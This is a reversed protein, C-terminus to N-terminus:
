GQSHTQIRIFAYLPAPSLRRAAFLNHDFFMHDPDGTKNRISRDNGAAHAPEGTCALRSELWASRTSHKCDVPRRCVGRYYAANRDDHGYTCVVVAADGSSPTRVAVFATDRDCDASATSRSVFLTHLATLCFSLTLALTWAFAAIAFKAWVVVPRAMGKSLPITLTGRRMEGTLTGSFLILFVFLGTQSANKFFQAWADMAVPEPLTIMMGDGTLGELIEPTLKAILPNTMGFIAFVVLLIPLRLTRWQEMWEKRLFATFGNM